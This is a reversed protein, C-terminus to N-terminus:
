NVLSWAGYVGALKGQYKEKVVKKQDHARCCFISLKEKGIPLRTAFSPM